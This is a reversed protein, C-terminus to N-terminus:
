HGKKALETEYKDLAKRLEDAMNEDEVNEV